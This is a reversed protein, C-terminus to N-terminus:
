NKATELREIFKELQDTTLRKALITKKDDLLFLVPTSSVDYEDHYNPTLCRPGNVNIWNLNNKLIYQKMEAMSTDSCVGFVELNFKQKFDDYFKKLKPSETKCHGCDPDWFYLITYKADIAYMSVPRMNTDLMIMNPATKGILIRKLKMAKKSLNELVTPNIWYAQNTMYYTEVMHVFIADFGMVNSIEYTNTLYWVFYKFMEKNDRVRAIMSDAAAIISDPMQVILKDFYTVIKQHFFPTRLLRDDLLNINDWYHQRFYYYLYASDRKGDAKLPAEPLVPEKLAQFFAAMFTEPHDKIFGLKYEELEKNIQSLKDKVIKLSDKNHQLKQQLKQLPEAEMYKFANFRLYDFFLQNQPSGKIRMNGVYDPGNTEMSFFQPGDVLFEFLKTKGLALIYIGGELPKDGEFVCRGQADVKATDILYTKEGYYNALYLSTDKLDSIRLKIEHGKKPAALLHLGLLPLILLILLRKM